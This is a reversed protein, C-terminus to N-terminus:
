QHVVSLASEEFYNKRDKKEAELAATGSLSCSLSYAREKVDNYLYVYGPFSM